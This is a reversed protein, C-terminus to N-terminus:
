NISLERSLLEAELKQIQLTCDEILSKILLQEDFIWQLRILIKPRNRKLDQRKLRIWKNLVRQDSLQDLELSSSAYHVADENSYIKHATFKISTYSRINHMIELIFFWSPLELKSYSTDFSPGEPELSINIYFYPDSVCSPKQFNLGKQVEVVLKEMTSSESSCLKLLDMYRSKEASLHQLEGELTPHSVYTSIFTFYKDNKSPFILAHHSKETKSARRVCNGM